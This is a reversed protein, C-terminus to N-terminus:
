LGSRLHSDWFTWTGNTSARKSERVGLIRSVLNHVEINGFGDMNWAKGKSGEASSVPAFSPGSAVFIAHMDEENDYGHNGRPAYVGDSFGAMEAHTTISWGVDPVIWLPALRDEVAASALYYREPLTDRTYVTWGKQTLTSLRDFAHQELQRQEAPTGRFRLGASPWGDRHELHAHLTSGLLDELYVLKANSTTTMGHDSVIIVDVVNHLARKDVLETHLRGIFADVQRVAALAQASDPGFKHAAQDIDPVYACILSPREEIREVDIWGLVQRLRGELDWESEYKQFYRPRGGQATVPPGPWMLVASSVGSREATAWIPEGRWWRVDWSMQPSTYYFQRGTGADTFDNAVIGHSGAYLGTLLTWHNPFTLTPFIPQMFRARRSRRTSTGLAQLSPALDPRLYAPKAGDLSVLVVTRRFAHTGNTLTANPLLSTAREDLTHFPLLSLLLAPLFLPILLRCISTRRSPQQTPTSPHLLPTTADAEHTEPAAAPQSPRRVSRSSDPREDETSM